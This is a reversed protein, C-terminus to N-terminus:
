IYFKLALHSSNPSSRFFETNFSFNNRALYVNRHQVTCSQYTFTYYQSQSTAKRNFSFVIFFKHSMEGYPAERTRFCRFYCSKDVSCFMNWALQQDWIDKRSFQFNRKSIVWSFRRRGRKLHLSPDHIVKQCYKIDELVSCFQSPM